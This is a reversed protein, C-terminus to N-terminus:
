NSPIYLIDMNTEPIKYENGNASHCTYFKIGSSKKPWISEVTFPNTPVVRLGNKDLAINDLSTNKLNFRTGTPYTIDPLEKKCSVIIIAIFLLKKM